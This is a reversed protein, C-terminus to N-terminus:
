VGAPVSEGVLFGAVEATVGHLVHGMEPLMRVTLNPLLGELRAATKESPYIADQAGVVLLTPMGLRALEEDTFNPLAGIRPKFHAMITNMYAVADPHIPQKGFTIRNIAEGGRRGLLALPIVRLLFSARATTVGAPALLVLRAVRQPEATAYKLATWGGQSIGVLAAQQLALGGLLDEMWEVYAPGQWPPRNHSSRGPEGPLDVAYVRLRKSYEGIDGMWALANSAAGHLLVVPPAGAARQRDCLHGGAADAADGDYVARALTGADPRVVGDGGTRGRPDQLDARSNGTNGTNGTDYRQWRRVCRACGHWNTPTPRRLISPYRGGCTSRAPHAHRTSCGAGSREELLLVQMAVGHEYRALLGDLEAAELRDAWALQILFTNRFQTLEPEALVWARLAAAGSETITYEKRPPYNEQQRVEIEVLGEEHLQVLTKYIQNNNGSWYFAASDVMIKKLDYGSLPKWSLLGLIAYKIAMVDGVRRYWYSM